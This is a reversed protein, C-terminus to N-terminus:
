HHADAVSESLYICTLLTFIYAQLIAIFIEFGTLLVLFAVPALGFIGLPIVFGAIVKLLTHGAMMNAALRISLSIPRSLFSILEIVFVIPAIWLPLGEPIFHAFFKIPGQNILGVITVASFVLAAVGFTVIIHSTATFSFPVMGLLNCFLIFLFLSLIYPFYKMGAKGTNDLVIGEVFQYTAEALGQWRGPVIARARMASYFMLGVSIVALVMFLSANTFSIDHGMLPPLEFLPKINFQEIPNHGAAM